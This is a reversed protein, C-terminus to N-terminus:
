VRGRKLHLREFRTGVDFRWDRSQKIKYISLVAFLLSATWALGLVIRRSDSIQGNFWIYPIPWLIAVVSTLPFIMPLPAFWGFLSEYSPSRERRWSEWRVGGPIKPDLEEIIFTAIKQMSYYEFLYRGGLAYTLFPLILLFGTRSNGSLSFSFLAATATLQLAFINWQM